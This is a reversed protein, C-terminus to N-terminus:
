DHKDRQRTGMTVAGSALADVVTRRLAEAHALVNHATELEHELSQLMEGVRAFTAPDFQPIELELVNIRPITGGTLLRRNPESTLLGAVAYPDFSEAALRLAQLSTGLVHGGGEDVRARITGITTFVIDGAKTISLPDVLVPDVFRPPEERRWPDHIDGPLWIPLGEDSYEDTKIRPARILTALGVDLLDRVRLRRAPESPVMAIPPPNTPLEAHAESLRARTQHVADILVDPDVLDPEHLWRSPVLVADGALLELVPVTTAFGPVPRFGDPTSRWRRIIEVLKQRLSPTLSKESSADVMLVPVPDSTPPRLIWLAVSANGATTTSGRPLTIIAEITGQRILEARFRAEAGGRYLSGAALLVYGHGETGLHRIVHALWTFDSSAPPPAELSGLLRWREDGVTEKMPPTRAGTPPDCVIVDARLDPFRDDSLSDGVAIEATIDRLILRAMALRWTSENVEQGVLRVRGAAKETAKILLDASGTAPDFVVGRANALEALLHGAPEATRFEGYRTARDVMLDLVSALSENIDPETLAAILLGLSRDDLTDLPAFLNRLIPQDAELKAAADKWGTRADAAWHPGHSPPKPRARSLRVLATSAALVGVLDGALARGRLSDAVSWLRQSIDTQPPPQARPSRNHRELWSDVDKRRFLDGGTPATGSPLPFDPFRKRWNSVASPKVAALEAIESATILQGRNPSPHRGPKM